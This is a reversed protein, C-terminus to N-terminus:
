SLTKPILLKHTKHITYKDFTFYDPKKIYVFSNIYFNNNFNQIILDPSKEFSTKLVIANIREMYNKDVKYNITSYRVICFALNIDNTSMISNYIDDDFDIDDPIFLTKSTIDNLYIHQLKSLILINAFKKFNNNYLFNIINDNVDENINSTISINKNYSNSEYNLGKSLNFPYLSVM